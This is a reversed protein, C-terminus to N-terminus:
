VRNKRIAEEVIETFRALTLRVMGDPAQGSHGYELPIAYPLNNTIFATQGSQFEIVGDTIKAIAEEGSPDVDGTVSLDPTSVSFKWNNRFRGTDVPSMIIVSRGIEIIIERETANIAGKAKEIFESVQFSFNGNKGGYKESMNM